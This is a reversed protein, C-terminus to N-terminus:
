LKNRILVRVYNLLQVDVPPLVYPADQPDLDIEGVFIGAPFIGGNGSTILEDGPDVDDGERMHLINMHRDGSGALIFEDGTVSSVVPLRFLPDTALLVQSNGPSVELVRGVIGRDNIVPDGVQIGQNEGASILVVKKNPVNVRVIVKATVFDKAEAVAVHYFKKLSKNDARLALVEQELTSLRKNELELATVKAKLGIYKEGGEWFASLAQFPRNIQEIVPALVDVVIGRVAMVPASHNFTLLGICALVLIGMGLVQRRSTQRMFLSYRRPGLSTFLKM